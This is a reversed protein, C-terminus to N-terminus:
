ALEALYRERPVVVCGGDREIVVTRFNKEAISGYDHGAGAPYIGLYVLPETGTNVTRHATHGPVYVAHDRDLPVFTSATDGEEELLMGGTGSIGIYIEAAPRWAHFHGKTMFYEAGVRGSMLTGLGIHLDGEGSGREITQVTYVVPNERELTAEFAREDAFIGRLDGLHRTVTGAGVFATRDSLFRIMLNSVNLM